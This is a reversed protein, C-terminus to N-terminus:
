KKFKIIIKDKEKEISHEKGRVSEPLSIYKEMRIASYTRYKINQRDEEGTKKSDYSIKVYDNKVEVSLNKNRLNSIDIALTYEGPADRREIKIDGDGTKMELWENFPESFYLNNKGAISEMRKKFEEIEEFPDYERSFFKDNFFSDFFEKEIKRREEIEKKIMEELSRYGEGESKKQATLSLISGLAIALSLAIFFANKKM